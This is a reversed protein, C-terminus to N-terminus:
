KDFYSETAQDIWGEDFELDMYEELAHGFEHMLTEIVMRKKEEAQLSVSTGDEYELEGSNFHLKCNFLITPEGQKASGQLFGGFAPITDDKIITLKM